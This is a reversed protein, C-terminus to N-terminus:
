MLCFFLFASDSHARAVDGVLSFLEGWGIFIEVSAVIAAAACIKFIGAKM